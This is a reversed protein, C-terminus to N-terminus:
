GFEIEECRQDGENEEGRGENEPVGVVAAHEGFAGGGRLDFAFGCAGGGFGGAAFGEGFGDGGLFFAAGFAGFAFGAALRVFGGAAFGEVGAVAEGGADGDGVAFAVGEVRGDFVFAVGDGDQLA